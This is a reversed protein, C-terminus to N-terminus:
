NMASAKVTITKGSVTYDGSSLTKWGTGNHYQVSVIINPTHDLGCNKNVSPDDVIFNEYDNQSNELNQNFYYITFTFILLVAIIVGVMFVVPLVNSFGKNNKIIKKM